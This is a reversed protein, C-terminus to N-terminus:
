WRELDGLVGRIVQRLECEQGAADLDAAARRLDAIHDIDYGLPAEHLPLGAEQARQRTQEVVRPTGWAIDNLLQPHHKALALYYYGGDECPGLSADHTRLVEPLKDLM